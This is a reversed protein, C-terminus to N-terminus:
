LNQWRKSRSRVYEPGLDLDTAFARILKQGLKGAISEWDGVVESIPWTGTAIVQNSASPPRQSFYASDDHLIRGKLGIWEIRFSISNPIEFREAFGQAHRILEAIARFQINPNLVSGITRNQRQNMAEDDEWYDRILSALGNPSVRWFDSHGRGSSLLNTQVFESEGSKYKPDTLFTPAIDHPNFPYFMTWGTQVRSRTEQNVQWILGMMKDIPIIETNDTNIKYTYQINRSAADHNNEALAAAEFAVKTLGHWDLLEDNSSSSIKENRLASGLLALLASRDHAVCRRIVPAWDREESMASSEPGTKRTYYTGKQIGHPKGGIDPGNAKAIVPVAGHAPVLVIDHVRGDAATVKLHQCQPPPELYKKVLSSVIDTNYKLHKILEDPSCSHDNEFGFIITGGGYNCIAAVHRAMAAKDENNSVLDLGRKLECDLTEQPFDVLSQLDQNQMLIEVNGARAFLRVLSTLLIMEPFNTQVHWAIVKSAISCLKQSFRPKQILTFNRTPAAFNKPRLRVGPVRM